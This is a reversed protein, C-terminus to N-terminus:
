RLGIAMVPDLYSRGAFVFETQGVEVFGCGAYFARARQNLSYVCLWLTRAGDGAARDLTAAMLAKGYGRGHHAHSLYFRKLERPAPGDVCLPADTPKLHAYGVPAGDVELVLLAQGPDDIAAGFASATFHEAIYGEIEDPDDWALYTDRFTAAALALLEPLDAPAASRITM